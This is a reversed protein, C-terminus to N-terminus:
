KDAIMRKAQEAKKLVVPHSHYKELDNNIVPASQLKTTKKTNVVKKTRSM